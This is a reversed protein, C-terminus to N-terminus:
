QFSLMGSLGAEFAAGVGCVTNRAAGAVGAASTGHDDHTHPTPDSDGQNFDYSGEANFHAIDPHDRQLGDDVVGITVGRGTYGMDWAPNVNVDVNNSNHLHWQNPYAPDTISTRKLRLKAVQKEFWAVHPSSSIHPFDEEINVTRKKDDLKHFLYVNDLSAVPGLNKFGHDAAVKDADIGPALEVAWHDTHM